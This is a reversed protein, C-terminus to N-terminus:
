TGIVRPRAQRWHGVIESGAQMLQLHVQRAAGAGSVALTPLAQEELPRALYIVPRVTMTANEKLHDHFM